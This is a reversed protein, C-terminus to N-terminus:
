ILLVNLAQESTCRYWACASTACALKPYDPTPQSIHNAQSGKGFQAGVGFPDERFRSPQHLNRALDHIHRALVAFMSTHVFPQLDLIRETSRAFNVPRPQECSCATLRSPIARDATAFSAHYLSLLLFSSSQQRLHVTEWCMASMEIACASSKCGLRIRCM